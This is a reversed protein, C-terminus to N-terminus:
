RESRTFRFPNFNTARDFVDLGEARKLFNVVVYTLPTALIEYAVKVLYISWGVSILLRSPLAGAFGVIMVVITDIAEGVLTSGITRTWLYRGGTAIKLKALIYSNAFEGAWYALVSAAVIRPVFGLVRAFAEQNTWGKAPPLAVAVWYAAAMLVACTFGIWIVRRSRAYGYVETLIDGFIYSIPFLLVGASLNLPGFAVIKQATTQTILLVAVFLGVIVDFHRLRPEVV